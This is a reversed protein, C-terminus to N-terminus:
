LEFLPEGSEIGLQTLVVVARFIFAHDELNHRYTQSLIAFDKLRKNVTEHRARLRRRSDKADDGEARSSFGGPTKCFMPEEGQYGNDAEVREDKDLYHKLGHRFIKIDPWSGCPFPGHVWVIDCGKISVGVEYRLGPGSFKHSYWIKSFPSPEEIPVDTGDISM